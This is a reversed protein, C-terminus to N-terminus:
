GKSSIEKKMREITCELEKNKRELEKIDKRQEIVSLAIRSHSTRKLPANLKAPTNAIKDKKRQERECDMVLKRCPNCISPEGPTGLVFCEKTRQYIDSRFPVNEGNSKFPVMHLVLDSKSITALVGPCVSQKSLQDLLQSVTTTELPNGVLVPSDDRLKWGFVFCKLSLNSEIIIKYKPVLLEPEVSELQVSEDTASYTWGSLRLKGVRAHLERFDKYVAKSSSSDDPEAVHRIIKRREEAQSAEHSKQPLNLVPLAYLAMTKKGTKTFEIDEPRFHTECIFCKGANEM